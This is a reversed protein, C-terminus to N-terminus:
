IQPQIRTETSLGGLPQAATSRRQQEQDVDGRDGRLRAAPNRPYRSTMPGVAAVTGFSLLSVCTVCVDFITECTKYVHEGGCVCLKEISFIYIYHKLNLM